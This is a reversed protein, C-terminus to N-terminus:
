KINTLKASLDWLDQALKMDNAQKSTASIKRKYYYEGPKWDKDPKTSALWVMTDAGKAPGILFINLFSGYLFSGYGKFELSFNTRVVGPHFAAASIGSAHFRRHLERTFLINMLKGKGYASMSTYGHGLTIDNLDLRGAFNHGMSSTAIVSAKSAILTEMLLNTLLFPALHNVQITMENGDPTLTRGGMIGGANNALVDIRPFDKKLQAALKRVDDLKTFDALYYPAKIDGAVKETKQPSRGVVVVRAGKAALLRAGAEGIGDSAGTIVIVKDKVAADDKNAQEM